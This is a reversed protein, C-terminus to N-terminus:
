DFLTQSTSDHKQGGVLALNTNITNKDIEGKDIKGMDRWRRKKGNIGRNMCLQDTNQKGIINDRFTLMM